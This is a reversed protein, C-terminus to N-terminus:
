TLSKESVSFALPEIDMNVVVEYLAKSSREALKIVGESIKNVDFVVEKGNEAFVAVESTEVPIRLVSSVKKSFPNYATVTVGAFIYKM